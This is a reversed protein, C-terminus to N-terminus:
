ATAPVYDMLGDLTEWLPESLRDHQYLVARFEEYEKKYMDVKGGHQINAIRDALKIIVADKSEAIKPLTKAKREKRNRGLEDTVRYVIEAVELGFYNKIDNYSVDCDEIVDHLFAAQRLKAAIIGHSTLVNDVDDLHKEYPFIDDYYQGSHAKVAVMRAEKVKTEVYNM